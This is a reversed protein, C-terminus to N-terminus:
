FSNKEEREREGKGGLVICLIRYRKQNQTLSRDLRLNLDM